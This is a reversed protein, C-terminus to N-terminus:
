QKAVWLWELVFVRNPGFISWLESYFIKVEGSAESPFFFLFFGVGRIMFVLNLCVASIVM